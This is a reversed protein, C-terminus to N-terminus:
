RRVPMRLIRGRRVVAGCRGRVEDGRDVVVRSRGGSCIVVDDDRGDRVNVFDGGRGGAGTRVVTPGQADVIMDSGPGGALVDRGPGGLLVDHGAGGVVRDDGPGAFLNDRGAEGDLRDDGAGGDVNDAGAGAYVRDDNGRGRLTDDGDAGRLTDRADTGTRVRKEGAPSIGRTGANFNTTAIQEGLSRGELTADPARQAATASASADKATASFYEAGQGTAVNSFQVGIRVHDTRFPNPNPNTLSPNIMTDTIDGFSNWFVKTDSWVFWDADAMASYRNYQATLFDKVVATAAATVAAVVAGGIAAPITACAIGFTPLGGVACVIVSAGIATIASSGAAILANAIARNGQFTQLRLAEAINGHIFPAGNTNLWRFRSDSDSYDMDGRFFPSGRWNGGYHKAVIDDAILTGFPIEMKPSCQLLVDVPRLSDRGGINRKVLVGGDDGTSACPDADGVDSSLHRMAAGTSPLLLGLALVAGLLVGLRARAPLTAALGAARLTRHM